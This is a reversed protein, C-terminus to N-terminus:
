SNCLFCSLWILVRQADYEARSVFNSQMLSAYTRCCARALGTLRQDIKELVSVSASRGQRRERGMRGLEGRGCVAGEVRAAESVRSM